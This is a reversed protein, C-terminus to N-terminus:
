TCINYIAAIFFSIIMGIAIGLKLTAKDEETIDPVVIGNEKVYRPPVIITEIKTIGENLRERKEPPVSPLVKPKVDDLSINFKNEIEAKTGYIVDGINLQYADEYVVMYKDIFGTKIVHILEPEGELEFTRSDSKREVWKLNSYDVKFYSQYHPESTVYCNTTEGLEKYNLIGNPYEWFNFEARLSKNCKKCDELIVGVYAKETGMQREDTGVMNPQLHNDEFNHQCGCHQCIVQIM